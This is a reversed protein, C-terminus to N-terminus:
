GVDIQVKRQLEAPSRPIHVELFGAEYHAVIGEADVNRSIFVARRFHGYPIEMQHCSVRPQTCADQRSGEITLRGADFTVRLDHRRVGALEAKVVYAEETEFVDVPPSWSMDRTFSSPHGVRFADSLLREMQRQMGLFGRVFDKEYGAM